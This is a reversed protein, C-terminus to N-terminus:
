KKTKTRVFDLFAWLEDLRVQGVPLTMNRWVDRVAALLDHFDIEEGEEIIRRVAVTVDALTWLSPQKGRLHVWASRLANLRRRSLEQNRYFTRLTGVGPVRDFADADIDTNPLLQWHQPLLEEKRVQMLLIDYRALNLQDFFHAIGPVDDGDIFAAVDEASPIVRAPPPPAASAQTESPSEVDSM